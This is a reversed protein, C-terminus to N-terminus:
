AGCARLADGLRALGEALVESDPLGYCLRMSHIDKITGPEECYCYEGPVYLVKRELAERFLPGSPGTDIGRARVWCYLGGGPKEWECFDPLHERMASLFTDRKARYYAQRHAVRDAYGQVHAHAPGGPNSGPVRHAHRHHRRARDAWDSRSWSPHAVAAYEWVSRALRQSSQGHSSEGYRVAYVESDIEFLFSPVVCIHPNPDSVSYTVANNNSACLERRPYQGGM